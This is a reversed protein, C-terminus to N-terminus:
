ASTPSSITVQDSLPPSHDCRARVLLSERCIELRRFYDSNVLNSVLSPFLMGLNYYGYFFKKRKFKDIIYRFKLTKIFSM